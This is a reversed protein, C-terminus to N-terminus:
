KVKDYVKTSRFVLNISEMVLRTFSRPFYQEKESLQLNM